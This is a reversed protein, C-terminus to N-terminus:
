SLIIPITKYPLITRKLWTTSSKYQNQCLAILIINYSLLRRDQKMRKM